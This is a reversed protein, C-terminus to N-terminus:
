LVDFLVAKTAIVSAEGVSVTLNFVLEYSGAALGPLTEYFLGAGDSILDYIDLQEGGSDKLIAQSESVYEFQDLSASIQDTGGITGSDEPVTVFDAVTFTVKKALVSGDEFIAEISASHKGIAVPWDVSYLNEEVLQFEFEDEGIYGKLSSLGGRILEVKWTIFVGYYVSNDLPEVFDIEGINGVFELGSLFAGQLAPSKQGIRLLLEVPTLGEFAKLIQNINHALIGQTLIASDVDTPLTTADLAPIGTNLKSNIGDPTYNIATILDEKVGM